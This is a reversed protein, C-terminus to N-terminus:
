KRVYGAELRCHIAERFKDSMPKLYIAIIHLLYVQSTSDFVVLGLSIKM